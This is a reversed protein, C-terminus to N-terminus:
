RSRKCIGKNAKVRLCALLERPRATLIAVPLPSVDGNLRHTALEFSFRFVGPYTEGRKYQNDVGGGIPCGFVVCGGSSKVTDDVDTIVQTRVMPEAPSSEECAIQVSSCSGM